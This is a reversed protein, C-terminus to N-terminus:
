ATPTIVVPVVIKGRSVGIGGGVVSFLGGFPIPKPKDLHDPDMATGTVGLTFAAPPYVETTDDKPGQYFVFKTVATSVNLVGDFISKIADPWGEGATNPIQPMGPQKNLWDILGKLTGVTIQAGEPLAFYLGNEAVKGLDAAYLTVDSDANDGLRITINFDTTTTATTTLSANTKAPTTPKTTEPTKDPM